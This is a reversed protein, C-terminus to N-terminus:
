LYTYPCLPVLFVTLSVTCKNWKNNYVFINLYWHPPIYWYVHMIFFIFQWWIYVLLHRCILYLSNTPVVYITVIVYIYDSHKSYFLGIWTVSRYRECSAILLNLSYEMTFSLKEINKFCSHMSDRDGLVRTEICWLWRLWFLVHNIYLATVINLDKYNVQEERDEVNEKYGWVQCSM